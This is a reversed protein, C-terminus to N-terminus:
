NRRFNIKAISGKGFAQKQLGLCGFKSGFIMLSFLSSISIVIKTQGFTGLFSDFHTVLDVCFQYFGLRSRVPEKRTGEWTGPDDWPGWSALTSAGLMGFSVRSCWFFGFILLFGPRSRVTDKTITGLTGFETWPGGPRWLSAM